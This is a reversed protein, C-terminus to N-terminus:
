QVPLAAITRWVVQVGNEHLCSAFGPNRFSFTEYVGVGM